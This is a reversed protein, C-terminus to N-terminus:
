SHIISDPDYTNSKRRNLDKPLVQLNWPVHLGCIDKGKIPIIHDVEYEEGTVLYCDKAHTYFRKIELEMEASLWSPKANDFNVRRSFRAKAVKDPNGERWSKQYELIKTRNSKHYDVRKKQLKPLNSEIYQKNYVAKKSKNGKDYNRVKIKRCSKCHSRVRTKDRSKDFFADFDEITKEELCHTCKKTDM